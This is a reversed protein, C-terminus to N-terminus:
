PNRKQAIMWDILERDAYARDWSNHGVGRYETYKAPAGLEHLKDVMTRMSRVTEVRDADGTIAWLPVTMLAQATEIRAPSCIPVVASFRGKNAAAIEWAGRGGMSLGSLILRNPDVKFRASVEELIALAASADESDAAWTEKAQAFIVIAPFDAQSALVAPGLGVQAPVIGDVGREGSGHLFLITPLSKATEYDAPLYLTYKRIGFGEKRLTRLQFGPKEEEAETTRPVPRPVRQVLIDRYRIEFPGKGSHVQTAFRGSLPISSDEEVYSATTMGNVFLNIRPGFARIMYSNWGAPDIKAIVTPPAQVLVKNRRSEDYLCGWYSEGIDAQYGVMEHAIPPAARESRFQMGSNGSGDKLRFAFKLVFDDFSEETALFNNKPLGTPTSGVLQGSEVKWVEADGNWGTLDRGNFLPLFGATEPAPELNELQRAWWLLITATYTSSLDGPQGSAPAYLGSETRREAIFERLKAFDPKAKMMFLARMIRYSAGLDSKGGVTPSWGGDPNQAKLLLETAKARREPSVPRGMRLFAAVTGGTMMPGNQSSGFLGEANAMAEYQSVWKDFVAEDKLGVAEYAAISLRVEEYEKATEALFKLAATVETGNEMKLDGWALMAMFTSRMDPKGGPASAFAGGGKGDPVFCARVFKTAKIVDPISGGVHKISRIAANTSGINSPGGKEAAFGGDENQLMRVAAATKAYEAALSAPEQAQGSPALITVWAMIALAFASYEYRRCHPM